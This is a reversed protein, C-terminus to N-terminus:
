YRRRGKWWVLGGVLVLFVLVLLILWIWTEKGKEGHPPHSGVRDRGVKSPRKEIVDDRLYLYELGSRIYVSISKIDDLGINTKVFTPIEEVDTFLYASSAGNKIDNPKLFRGDLFTYTQVDCYETDPHKLGGVCAPTCATSIDRHKIGCGYVHEAVTGPKISKPVNKSSLLKDVEDRDSDSLSGLRALASAADKNGYMERNIERRLVDAAERSSNM